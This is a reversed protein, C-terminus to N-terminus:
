KGTYSPLILYWTVSFNQLQAQSFLMEIIFVKGQSNLENILVDYIRIETIYSTKAILLGFGLFLGFKTCLYAMNNYIRDSNIHVQSANM